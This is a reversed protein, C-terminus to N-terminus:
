KILATPVLVGMVGLCMEDLTTEGLSIDKPASLNQQKLAQVIFPNSMSNNYECHMRIVDGATGTPLDSIAGDYQYLRQWNFDWAPTEVLCENAPQTATVHNREISFKMETGAYHMHPGVALIPVDIIVQSPVTFVMEEVHKEKNAPILFEPVGNTDDPDPLLGDSANKANGPLLTLYSWSPQAQTFRLQIKSQDSEMKGRPHYHMQIVIVDDVGMKIGVDPPLELPVGGPAWAHVLTGPPSGFCPYQDMGGSEKAVDTRKASFLLAHHAINANGAIFHLGDVFQDGALKPDYVVCQFKDASGDVTTPSTATIEQAFNPLGQNALVFPPPADKPDGEPAKQDAWAKFIAIEQDTLSPDGRWSLRPKCDDTTKALFPPMLRKTTKDAMDAALPKAEEYKVLSFGGIQGDSHCTLCHKQLLPEVDKHFSVPGISAGGTGSTDGAGNGCASLGLISLVVLCHQAKM